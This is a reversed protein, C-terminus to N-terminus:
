YVDDSFNNVIIVVVGQKFGLSADCENQVIDIM